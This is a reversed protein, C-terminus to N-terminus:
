EEAKKENLKASLKKSPKFKILYRSPQKTITGKLNSVCLFSKKETVYFKGLENIAIEEKNELAEKIIDVTLSVISQVDEKRYMKRQAEKHVRKVLEKKNM